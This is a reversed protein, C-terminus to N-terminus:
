SRADLISTFAEAKKEPFLMRVCARLCIRKQTLVHASEHASEPACTQAAERASAQASENYSNHVCDETSAHMLEQVSEHVCEQTTVHTSEHASKHTSVHASEHACPSLHDNFQSSERMSSFPFFAFGWGMKARALSFM